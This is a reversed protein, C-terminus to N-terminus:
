KDFAVKADERSVVNSIVDVSFDFAITTQIMLIRDFDYILDHGRDCDAQLRATFM